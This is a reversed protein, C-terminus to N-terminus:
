HEFWPCICMASKTLIKITDWGYNLISAPEPLPPIYKKGPEFIRIPTQDGLGTMEIIQSLAQDLGGLGDILGNEVAQRGTWVRGGAIKELEGRNIERSESVHDLFLAYVRSIYEQILEREEEAFPTEPSYIRANEGRSISEQNIFLKDLLGEDAIKGFIVGISGTLTNPQALIRRGPISIWYGGSGAVPGM